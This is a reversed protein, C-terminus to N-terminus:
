VVILIAQGATGAAGDTGGNIGAGGAGAAYSSAGIITSPATGTTARYVFIVSGGGGGGGGGTATGGGQSAGGAAGIAQIIATGSFNVVRVFLLLVGGGGGGGGGRLAGSGQGGGGGCGGQVVSIGSAGFLMGTDLSSPVRISGQAATPATAASTGPGGAGDGTGGSGGSGGLAVALTKSTGGDLGGGGGAGGADAGLVGSAGPRTGGTGGGGGSTGIGGNCKIAPAASSMDLTGNVFMRFGATNLVVAASFTADTYFVDRTLTYPGTGSAGTVAGVGNFVAAGDSGGGFVGGAISDLYNIWQGHANLEYNVHEAALAAQPIFGTFAVGGPYTKNIQASWPDAGAPFIADTAFEPFVTPRTM